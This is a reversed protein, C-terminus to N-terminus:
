VTKKQWFQGSLLLKWLIGLLGPNWLILLFMCMVYFNDLDYCVYVIAYVAYGTTFMCFYTCVYLMHRTCVM